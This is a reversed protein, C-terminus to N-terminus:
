WLSPLAPLGLLVLIISLIMTIIWYIIGAIIAIVLARGWGCDFFHRILGLWVVIMILTGLISGLSGPLLLSLVANIIVGLVGIWVADTFRAKKKGVFWKGVTWLVPALIVAAVVIQVIISTFDM